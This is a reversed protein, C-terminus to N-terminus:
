ENTQGRGKISKYIARGSIAAVTLLLLTLFLRLNEELVENRYRRFAVGYQRLDMSNRLYRMAERNDGQALLARGIGRQAISYNEDLELLRQWREVAAGEDGDYSLRVAENILRGYETEEFYVVEARQRDLILLSNEIIDIAVPQRNMGMVNGSGAIVYLLNGEQDYTFARGRTNDLATYMGSGREVIDIFNSTPLNFILPAAIDGAIRQQNFNVLVNNGSPNLRMVFDAHAGVSTPLNVTYIFGRDDIDMGSFEMPIFLRQQARQERTSIQRWFWDLPTFAVPITGFYGFFTGDADFSMIGEFVNRAIVFIRDVRNVVVKLPMFIFGDDIGDGQPSNIEKMFSGDPYLAVIRNNGTDAVYINFDHTVYVGNPNSFYETEGDRLFSDIVRILNLEVDFVVIRNNGTDLLYIHGNADVALDEPARFSGLEPDIDRAGVSKAPLYAAPTPIERGWFDYTYSRYPVTAGISSFSIVLALFIFLIKKYTKRM